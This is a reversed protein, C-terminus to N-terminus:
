RPCLRAITPSDPEPLDVVACAIMLRSGPVPWTEPPWIRRSPWSRVLAEGFSISAIRPRLIPNTGCSGIDFRLGTHDIPKWTSSAMLALPMAVPRLSTLFRAISTSFCAPRCSASRRRFCNGCWNEPPMRWRTSM